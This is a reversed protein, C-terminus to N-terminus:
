RRSAGSARGSMHHRVGSSSAATRCPRSGTEARAAPLRRGLYAARVRRVARAPTEHAWVRVVVWGLSRLELTRRRDRERNTDIKRRWWEANTRPYTRHRPCGHWFCGDVFVAVRARPFVVDAECRLTAVPACNKRFRLGARHLASRVALEPATDRPGNALMVRRAAPSSAWSGSRRPPRPAVVGSARATCRSITADPSSDEARSSSM